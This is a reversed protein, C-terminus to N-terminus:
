SGGSAINALEDDTLQEIPKTTEIHGSHELEITKAEKWGMQTKSWWIAATTDGDVAKQFLTMGVKSNAKAKGLALQKGCHKTLTQVDIGGGVLAAIQEYPVGYGSLKEALELDESSPVFEPRAM